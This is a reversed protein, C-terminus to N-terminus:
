KKGQSSVNFLIGIGIIHFMLSTGGYSIFPLTLGKTPLVGMGVGMNIISQIVILTTIGLALYCGFYDRARISIRFGCIIFLIFIAILGLVGVLGLEEGLISFIFDTHCEPLYFLKLKSNGLGAGWIGGAGLATLSQIIHFGSGTPDEWPNLYAFLRKIRYPEMVMFYLLPPLSITFLLIQHTIRTGSIYLYIFLLFFLILINGFDPQLYLLFALLGTIIVHPLIGISFNKLKNHKKALSYSLYIILSLKCFEVPQFSIPGFRFWRTAGGIKVGYFLVFILCLINLTLIIYVTKQYFQYRIRMFLMLILLSLLVFTVHKKFFFYGDNYRKLALIYSSSYVLVIGLGVLSLVTFIMLKDYIDKEKM